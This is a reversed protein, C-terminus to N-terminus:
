LYQNPLTTIVNRNERRTMVTVGGKDPSGTSTKDSMNPCKSASESLEHQMTDWLKLLIAVGNKYRDIIILM